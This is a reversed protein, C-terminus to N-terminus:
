LLSTRERQEISHIALRALGSKPPAIVRTGSRYTQLQMTLRRDVQWEATPEAEATRVGFYNECLRRLCTRM